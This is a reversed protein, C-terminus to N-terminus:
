GRLVEIASRVDKTDALFSGSVLRNAGAERLSDATEPGVAGDVQVVMSPEFEKVKKIQGLVREDFGEGQFGVEAIGMCQVFNFRKLIDKYEEISDDNHFAIGFEIISSVEKNEDFWELLEEVDISTAHIIIRAPGMDIYKQMDPIPNLVMLDLEYDMENWGPLGEDKIKKFDNWQDDSSFPWTTEPVYEGDMLDLQVMEVQTNKYRLFVDQIDQIEDPMLAPIVETKNETEKKM